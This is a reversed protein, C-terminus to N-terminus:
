ATITKSINALVGQKRRNSTTLEGMFLVQATRADQDQPRVFPTTVFDTGSDVVLEFFTSNIFYATSKAPNGGDTASVEQSFSDPTREDWVALAGKLRLNDFGLDASSISTFRTRTEDLGSEYTEYGDQDFVVLDPGGGPGRSCTNWMNRLEKNLGAYTTASSDSQRNRWWDFTSQNINGISTSTTPDDKILLPLPTLDKGGNGATFAGLLQRAAEDSMSLGLESIKQQLLAIIRAEGSNQREEKRSISVSGAIQKWDYFASTLNDQPTTDLTEYNAYSGVTTNKGYQLGVQIREGGDVLRKRGNRHLWNWVVNQLFVNDYLQSRVSFLTTTLLSDYNLTLSSPSPM